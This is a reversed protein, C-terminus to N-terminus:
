VPAWPRPPPPLLLLNDREACTRKEIGALPVGPGQFGTQGVIYTFSLQYLPIARHVYMNLIGVYFFDTFQTGKFTAESCQAFSPLNTCKWNQGRSGRSIGAGGARTRVLGLLQSLKCSLDAWHSHNRHSRYLRNLSNPIPISYLM